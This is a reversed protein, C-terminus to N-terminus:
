EMGLDTHTVMFFLFGRDQFLRIQIHSGSSHEQFWQPFLLTPFACFARNAPELNPMRQNCGSEGPAGGESGTYHTLGSLPMCSPAGALTEWLPQWLKVWTMASSSLMAGLGFSSVLEM